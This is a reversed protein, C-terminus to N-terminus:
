ITGKGLCNAADVQEKLFDVCMKKVPEIQYKNAADLLSQVNNSNVSIRFCFIVFNNMTYHFEDHFEKGLQYKEM